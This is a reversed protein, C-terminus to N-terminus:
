SRCFAQYPAPSTERALAEYGEPHLNETCAVTIYEFEFWLSYYLWLSLKLYIWMYLSLYPSFYKFPVSSAKERSASRDKTTNHTCNPKFNNSMPTYMSILIPNFTSMFFFSIALYLLSNVLAASGSISM